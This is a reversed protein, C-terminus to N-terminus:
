GTIQRVADDTDARTCAYSEVVKSVIATGAAIVRGHPPNYPAIVAIEAVTGVVKAANCVDRSTIRSSSDDRDNGGGGFSANSYLNDSRAKVETSM